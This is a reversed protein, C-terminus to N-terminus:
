KSIKINFIIYKFIFLIIKIYKFIFFYKLFHNVIEFTWLNTKM